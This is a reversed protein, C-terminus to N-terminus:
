RLPDVLRAGRARVRLPHWYGWRRLDKRPGKRQFILAATVSAAIFLALISVALQRADFFM